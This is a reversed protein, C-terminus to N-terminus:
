NKVISSRTTDTLPKKFLYRGKSYIVLVENGLLPFLHCYIHQTSERSICILLLKSTNLCILPGTLEKITSQVHERQQSDGVGKIMVISSNFSM